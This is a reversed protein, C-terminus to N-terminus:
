KFKKLQSNRVLFPTLIWSFNSIANYYFIFKLIKLEANRAATILEKFPLEWAYLKIVKIGNLMENITKVRSDTEKLKKIQLKKAQNSIYSNFPITITMAFLGALSAVGLQQWLLFTGFLISFMCSWIMNVHHSFENLSQVNVSIINIMEGVTSEKRSINSLKM